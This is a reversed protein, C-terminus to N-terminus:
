RHMELDEFPARKGPEHAALEDVSLPEELQLADGPVLNPSPAERAAREGLARTRLPEELDHVLGTADV